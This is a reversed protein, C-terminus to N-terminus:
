THVWAWVRVVDMRCTEPYSRIRFFVEVCLIETLLLIALLMFARVQVLIAAPTPLLSLLMACSPIAQMVAAM